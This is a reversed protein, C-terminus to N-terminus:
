KWKGIALYEFNIATNTSSITSVLQISPAVSSTPYGITKISIINKDGWTANEFNFFIEPRSTFSVPFSKGQIESSVYLAGSQTTTNGGTQIFYRNTCIMTGDNYKIWNGNDNSGSEVINGDSVKEYGAPVSTGNYEVMAGIPLTDGYTEGNASTDIWFDGEEPNEPPTPGIPIDAGGAIALNGAGLISENNITKINTGSVLTNQKNSLSTNVMDETALKKSGDDKNKGSTSGIYVDGSFWANGQWDITHANSTDISSNGNGVIHAYENNTDSINYKGQAHSHNSSATTGLGEAHSYNGSATTISGEAHSYNGSASVSYGEAHSYNGQAGSNYGEAHSWKGYATTFQGEAWAYQGLPLGESDNAGITRASGIANGDLVNNLSSGGGSENVWETDYDTNSKKKLVQGTAGGSPVGEGTDGKPGADGKDGKPGKINKTEPNDLNGNNTWSLNGENDVSPTFTVGNEGNIGDKGPLGKNAYGLLTTKLEYKKISSNIKIEKLKINTEM